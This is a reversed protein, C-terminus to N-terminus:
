GRDSKQRASGARNKRYDKPMVGLSAKFARTFAAPSAFGVALAVETVRAGERSLLETARIMRAQQLFARFTTQAEEEFRRALTRVSVGAHRAAEEIAPSEAMRDVMWDMARALEPSRALPLRLSLPDRAWEAALAGLARFFVEQLPTVRLTEPGWAMAALIMERALPPVAFVVCPVEPLLPLARDFYVTRLSVSSRYRVTHAVGAGIWAAREPPLLWRGGDVVLELCGHEAYLLQHKAHAHAEGSGPAHEDALGFACLTLRDVDISGDLGSPRRKM